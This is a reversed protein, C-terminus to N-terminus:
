KALRRVADIVEDFKQQAVDGGERAAEAVCHELHDKLLALSVSKLASTAASVQTLVDICYEDDEVMRAIGRVQGEVLKLRRLYAQKDPSYGHTHHDHTTETM